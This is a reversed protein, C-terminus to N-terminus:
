GEFWIYFGHDALAPAVADTWNLITVRAQQHTAPCGGLNAGRQMSLGPVQNSTTTAMAADISVMGSRPTFPLGGFCYTGVAPRVVNDQVINKNQAPTGADLTGTSGVRAFTDPGVEPDLSAGDIDTATLGNDAVDGSGVGGDALEGSGVSSDGLEGSGVSNDGLDGSGLTGDAVDGGAVANSRIESAGVANRRIEAARVANKAIESAKVANKRIEASGVSNAVAYSTGGLAAFLAIMSIVNPFSLHRRIRQM